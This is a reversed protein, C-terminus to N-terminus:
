PEMGFNSSGFGARARSLDPFVRGKRQFVQRDRRGAKADSSKNKALFARSAAQAIYKMSYELTAWVKWDDVTLIDSVAENLARLIDGRSCNCFAAEKFGLVAITNSFEVYIADSYAPKGGCVAAIRSGSELGLKPDYTLM